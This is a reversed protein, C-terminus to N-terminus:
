RSPAYRAALTERLLQESVPKVLHADFGADESRQRHEAQGYGTLAILRVSEGLIARIRRGVEYGDVDPLGIDVLAVDPRVSHALDIGSAGRDAVRVRHGDRALLARILERTDANDEIVLIRLPPLRRVEGAPVGSTAAPAGVIPLRVVFESGWGRGESTASVTGGHLEVLKRVITLGIGLGGSVHALSRDGQMFLDFVRSVLEPAMGIGDDRVRLVAQRGELSAAVAIHGHPPTYKAANNLLNTVVQALRIPDADLWLREESLSVALTHGHQEILPRSTELAAEIVTALDVSEKRLEISGRTIRAVDLLDDLLRALHGVQRDMIERAKQIDSPSAPGHGIIQTAIRIPALPNRLEHALMALFQDKAQNAEALRAAAQASDQARIKESVLTDTFAALLDAYVRLRTRLLPAQRRITPWVAHMPLDHRRTFRLIASEEPFATLRYGGVVAGIVEDGRRLASGIVAVGHDEVIVASSPQALCDRACESFLPPDRRGQSTAEFFRTSHVPGLIRHDPSEYVSIAMDTAAGFKELAGVWGEPEILGHLAGM